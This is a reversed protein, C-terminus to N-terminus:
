VVINSFLKQCLNDTTVLFGNNSLLQKQMIVMTAECKNNNNHKIRCLSNNSSISKNDRTITCTSKYVFNSTITWHQRKCFNRKEEGKEILSTNRLFNKWMMKDVAVNAYLRKDTSNRWNFKSKISELNSTQEETIVNCTLHNSWKM